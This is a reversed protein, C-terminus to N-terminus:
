VEELLEDCTCQNFDVCYFDEDFDVTEIFRCYSCKKNDTSIKNEEKNSKQKLILNM